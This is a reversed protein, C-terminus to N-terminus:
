GSYLINADDISFHNAPETVSEAENINLKPTNNNSETVRGFSISIIFFLPFIIVSKRM